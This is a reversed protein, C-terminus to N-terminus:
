SDTMFQEHVCVFLDDRAFGKHVANLDPAVCMPNTNQILLGTVPPGGRLAETDGMLIAGIRSQDLSRVSTDRVDLGEVLTRNWTYIAENNKFAGGGPYKWAGTVAAISLAAHMNVAGNRSRTFGFGLRVFTRKHTGVLRAFAEIESVELGTIAAAWEPTRTKLHAELEAPADTFEQLFQRDALGDRFLVHMVACALAGDTGPRVCLHMDAQLATANRYVDVVVLKAGREKRARTAHTM